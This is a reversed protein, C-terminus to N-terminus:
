CQWTSRASRVVPGRGERSSEEGLSQLSKVKFRATILGTKILAWASVARPTLCPGKLFFLLLDSQKTVCICPCDCKGFILTKHANGSRM